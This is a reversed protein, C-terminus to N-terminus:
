VLESTRRVFSVHCSLLSQGIRLQGTTAKAVKHCEPPLFGQGASGMAAVDKVVTPLSRLQRLASPRPPLAVSDPSSIPM